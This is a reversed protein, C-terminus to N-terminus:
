KEISWAIGKRISEKTPYKGKIIQLLPSDNSDQVFTFLLILLMLIVYIIEIKISPKQKKIIKYYYFIVISFLSWAIISVPVYIIRGLGTYPFVIQFLVHMFFTYILCRFVFM